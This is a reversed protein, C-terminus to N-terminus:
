AYEMIHEVYVDQVHLSALVEDLDTDALCYASMPCLALLDLFDAWDVYDPLGNGDDEDIFLPAM